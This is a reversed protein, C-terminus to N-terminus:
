VFFGIKIGNDELINETDLITVGIQLTKRKAIAYYSIHTEGGHRKFYLTFVNCANRLPEFLVLVFAAIGSKPTLVVM